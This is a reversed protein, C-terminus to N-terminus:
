LWDGEATDCSVSPFVTTETPALRAEEEETEARTQGVVRESLRFTKVGVVLGVERGSGVRGREQETKALGGERARGGQEEGRGERGTDM